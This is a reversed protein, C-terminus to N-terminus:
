PRNRCRSCSSDRAAYTPSADSNCRLFRYSMRQMSIGTSSGARGLPHCSRLQQKGSGEIDLEPNPAKVYHQIGWPEHYSECLAFEQFLFVFERAHLHVSSWSSSAAATSAASFIRQTIARGERLLPSKCRVSAIITRSYVTFPLAARSCLPRVRPRAPQQQDGAAWPFPVAPLVKNYQVATYAM